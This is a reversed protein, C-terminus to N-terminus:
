DLMTNKEYNVNKYIGGEVIFVINCRKLIKGRQETSSM